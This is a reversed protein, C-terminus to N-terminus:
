RSSAQLPAGLGKRSAANSAARRPMATRIRRSPLQDETCGSDLVFSSVNAFILSRAFAPCSGRSTRRRSGRPEMSRNCLLPTTTSPWVTRTELMFQARPEAVSFRSIPIRRSSSATARKKSAANLASQSPRDVDPLSRRRNSSGTARTPSYASTAAAEATEKRFNLTPSLPMFGPNRSRVRPGM